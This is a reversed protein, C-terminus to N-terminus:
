LASVVKFILQRYWPNNWYDMLIKFDAYDSVTFVRNTFKLQRRVTLKGSENKVEWAFTGAKNTISLKKDPTFCTLNVPLTINFSYSEDAVSPIEYPTERKQSLSKIGWNEIGYSVVPLSFYYFDSDKRFPKESQVIYAQYGNELNLTSIKLNASDNGILNGSLSNKMRKKDRQLGAFPYIGGEFYMSVEGTLRPDSSVILTGLV